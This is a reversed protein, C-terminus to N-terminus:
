GDLDSLRRNIKDILARDSDTMIDATIQLENKVNQGSTDRLTEYAKANGTELISQLLAVNMVAQITLDDDDILDAKEGILKKAYERSVATNLMTLAQEKMTKRKQIQECRAKGGMSAIERIRNREEDTKCEAYSKQPKLNALSNKRKEDDTYNQM